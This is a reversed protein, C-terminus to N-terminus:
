AKWEGLLMMSTETGNFSATTVSGGKELAQVQNVGLLPVSIYKASITAALATNASNNFLTGVVGAATSTTNVGVAISGQSTGGGGQFFQMMETYYIDEALGSFLYLSNATSNNSPRFVTGTALTWGATSDGAKLYVPARNYTNWIGWQRSQGYTRHLNVTGATAGIYVSGLYVGSATAISYSSAGNLITMTVTNTWLGNLATLAAGGAGTGRACSGPTVSGSTGAAWSPSIGFTLTSNTSSIFGYIDYINATTQSASLSITATAFTQVTVVGSTPVPILNGIYPNYFISTQSTADGTIISTGATPSLYGQPSLQNPALGVWATGNYYEPQGSGTNYGMNGPSPATARSATARQPWVWNQKSIASFLNTITSGTAHTVSTTGMDGRTNITLGQASAVTYSMIENGALLYGNTSWTTSTGIQISGTGATALTNINTSTSAGATNLVMFNKGAASQAFIGIQDADLTLALAGDSALGLIGSGILYLGTTPDSSFTISPAAASGSIAKFAATMGAQGDRTLCDSLGSAIDSFNQNVASSLITTNPVFTNIISFTGSGNFPM